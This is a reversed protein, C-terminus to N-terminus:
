SYLDQEEEDDLPYGFEDTLVNSAWCIEAPNYVRATVTQLYTALSTSRNTYDSQGYVDLRYVGMPYTVNVNMVGDNCDSVSAVVNSLEVCKPQTFVLLYYPYSAIGQLVIQNDTNAYLTLM